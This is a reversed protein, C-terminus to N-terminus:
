AGQKFQEEVFSEALTRIPESNVRRVVKLIEAKGIGRSIASVIADALTPHAQRLAEAFESQFPLPTPEEPAECYICYRNGAEGVFRHLCLSSGEAFYGYGALPEGCDLCTWGYNDGQRRPHQCFQILM